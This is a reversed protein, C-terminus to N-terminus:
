TRRESPAPPRRRSWGPRPASPAQYTASAPRMFADACPQLASRASPRAAVRPASSCLGHPGSKRSAHQADASSQSARAQASRLCGCRRPAAVSIWCSMSSSFFGSTWVQSSCPAGVGAAESDAVRGLSSPPCFQARAKRRQTASVRDWRATMRALLLCIGPSSARIPRSSATSTRSCPGPPDHQQRCPQEHEAVADLPEVPRHGAAPSLLNQGHRQLRHLLAQGHDPKAEAVVQEPQQAEREAAQARQQQELPRRQELRDEAGHEDDDHHCQEPAHQGAEQQRRVIAAQAYKRDVVRGRPMPGSPAGNQQAPEEAAPDRQLDQAVEVDILRHARRDGVCQAQQQERQRHHREPASGRQRVLRLLAAVAGPVDREGHGHQKRGQPQKPHEAGHLREPQERDRGRQGRRGADHVARDVMDESRGADLLRLARGANERRHQLAAGPREQDDAGDPEQGPAPPDVEIGQGGGVRGGRPQQSAHEIGDQDQQDGVEGPVHHAGEDVLAHMGARDFVFARVRVLGAAARPHARQQRDSRLMRNM